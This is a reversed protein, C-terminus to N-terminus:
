AMVDFAVNGAVDTLRFDRGGHRYTLKEHDLGMLHLITAHLDHIHMKDKEARIGLEDTAGHVYGPKVGGGAMWVTFGHPNHDRGTGVKGKVPQVTPTRGFEGGWVVLTEDLLGREKLDTLLAAVPQDVGMANERHNEELDEHQDWNLIGPKQKRMCHSAQIFRVGSEAFRRALLCQRGFDDTAENGIGYLDLTRQSESKIDMVLPAEAQMKFALEFSQILGELQNTVPARRQHDRNLKQIFGLQQRQLKSSIHKNKLNSIEAGAALADAGGIPTGQYIAPLFASGYNRAGGFMSPCITVFAPLSENETGLGYALWSGMSPRVDTDAGTHLRVTAQGHDFGDTHMSKIMCLEDAHRTLHPFLESIWMGSKGHQAFQFPSGMLVNPVKERIAQQLEFGKLQKTKGDAQQLAPKYDFTDVQSPGGRMFLFIVRKARAPFHPLRAALPHAPNLTRGGAGANAVAQEALLGSLALSGFGCASRSLFERRSFSEKM